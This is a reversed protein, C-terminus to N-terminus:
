SLLVGKKIEGVGSPSNVFNQDCTSLGFALELEKRDSVVFSETGM